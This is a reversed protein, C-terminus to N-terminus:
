RASRPTGAMRARREDHGALVAVGVPDEPEVVAHHPGVPGVGDGHPDNGAPSSPSVRRMSIGPDVRGADELGLHGGAGLEVPQLGVVADRGSRAGREDEVIGVPRPRREALEVQVQEALAAVAPQPLHEAGVGPRVVPMAPTANATQAGLARATRTTPSQFKQSPRTWGIRERPPDPTHSSNM